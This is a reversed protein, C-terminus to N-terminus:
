LILENLQLARCRHQGQGDKFVHIGMIKSLQEKDSGLLNLIRRYADAHSGAHLTTLIGGHGTRSLDEWLQAESDRVEGIVINQPSLRLIECKLRSLSVGGKGSPDTPVEVLRFWSKSILPLEAISEVIGLRVNQFFCRLSAFLATTKGSGTAGHFVVSAEDQVWGFLDTRSFNELVFDDLNAQSLLQKRFVLQPGDPSMPPLVVHWRLNFNPVVGGGFPRYPDLRTKSVWSLCWVLDMLADDTYKVCSDEVEGRDNLRTLGGFSSLYVEHINPQKLVELLQLFLPQKDLSDSFDEPSRDESDVISFINKRSNFVSLFKELM